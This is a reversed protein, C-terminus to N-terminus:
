DWLQSAQRERKRKQIEKYAQYKRGSKASDYWSPRMRQNDPNAQDEAEGIELYKYVNYLSEKRLVNAVAERAEQSTATNPMNTALIKMDTDTLGRAGLQALYDAKISGVAKDMLAVAELDGSPFGFSTLFNQAASILPQAGGETGTASSKLFNDVQGITSVGSEAATLYKEQMDENSKYIGKARDLELSRNYGTTATETDFAQKAEREGTDFAQGAEREATTAAQQDDQKAEATAAEEQRKRKAYEEGFVDVNAQYTAKELRAQSKAVRDAKAKTLGVSEIERAHEEETKFNRGIELKNLIASVPFGVLGTGKWRTKDAATRAQKPILARRAADEADMQEQSPGGTNYADRRRTFDSQRQQEAPDLPATPDVRLAATQTGQPPPTTLASVQSQITPAQAQFVELGQLRRLEEIQAQKEEPTM